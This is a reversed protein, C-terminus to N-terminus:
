IKILRSKLKKVNQEHKSDLWDIGDNIISNWEEIADEKTTFIRDNDFWHDNGGSKLVKLILRDKREGICYWEYHTSKDKIDTITYKKPPKSHLFTRRESSLLIRCYWITDGINFNEPNQIM